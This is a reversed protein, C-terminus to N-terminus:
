FLAGVRVTGVAGFMPPPPLRHFDPVEVLTEAVPELSAPEPM